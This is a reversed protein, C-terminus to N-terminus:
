AGTYFRRVTGAIEAATERSMGPFIPFCLVDSSVAEANPLDGPGMGLHRYADMLHIPTPYIVRTEFGKGALYAALEGRRDVRAALVHYVHRFGDPTKQFRIGGFDRLEDRYVEALERRRRNWDELRDLKIRLLAAQLTDMRSNYGEREHVYAGTQGHNRLLRVRRALESDRCTLAGADGFAGLNKSPYFSFAAADGFGGVRVGDIEAGHAQCADEVVLLDRGGWVERLARMDAPLGFLHVPVIARTRSGLRSRVSDPSINFTDPEIDALILRGTQSAAEATAIFTFPSTVVEDDPGIGGGLLALRLADTGSNLAVCHPSGCYAAFAAEFDVVASGGVFQNRDLLDGVADLFEERVEATQPSLDLFPVKM